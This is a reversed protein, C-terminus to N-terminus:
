ELLAAALREQDPAVLDTGAAKAVQEHVEGDKVQDLPIPEAKANEFQVKGIGGRGPAVHETFVAAPLRQRRQGQAVQPAHVALIDLQRVPAVTATALRLNEAAA